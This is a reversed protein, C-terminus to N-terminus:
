LIRKLEKDNDQSINTNSKILLFYQLIQKKIKYCLDRDIHLGEM